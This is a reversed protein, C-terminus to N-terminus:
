GNTWFPGPACTKKVFRKSWNRFIPTTPASVSRIRRALGSQRTPIRQRFTPLRSSTIVVRGVRVGSTFDVALRFLIMQPTKQYLFVSDCNYLGLCVWFFLLSIHMNSSAQRRLVRLRLLLRPPRQMHRMGNWISAHSGLQRHWWVFCPAPVRTTDMSVHIALEQITMQTTITTRYPM